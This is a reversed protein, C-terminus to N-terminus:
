ARALVKGAILDGIPMASTAAPSPANCVHTMRATEYFLFDEVMSGDTRVAQARIGAEEPQLDAVTLQPCYKRVLELYGRKYVSNWQEVLGTRLQARAM